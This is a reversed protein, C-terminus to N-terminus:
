PQQKGTTAGSNFEIEDRGTSLFLAQMEVAACQMREGDQMSCTERAPASEHRVQAPVECDTTVPPEGTIDGTPPSDEVGRALCNIFEDKTGYQEKFEVEGMSGSSVASIASKKAKHPCGRAIHGKEGCNYCKRDEYSPRERGATANTLKQVSTSLAELSSSNTEALLSLASVNTIIQKVQTATQSTVATLATVELSLHNLAKQQAAEMERRASSMEEMTVYAASATINSAESQVARIGMTSAPLTNGTDSRYTVQGDKAPAYPEGDALGLIQRRNAENLTQLSEFEEWSLATFVGNRLDARAAAQPPM